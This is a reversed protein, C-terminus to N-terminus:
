NRTRAAVCRRKGAVDRYFRIGAAGTAPWRSALLAAVVDAQDHGVELVVWGDVVVNGMGAVLRHFFRLGDEGGDLALAPDYCRVEPELGAIQGTRIYPPNSILIDFQGRVAELADGALWQARHAMGLQRANARAVDLAAVSIDTGIGLAGPLEALLTLLLCGSGTGVDLIRLPRALWGESATLELAAGILTESDPRPDLTAPSIAFSQGYFDREGVIRSVPERAVRRAICRGVSEAEEPSLPREPRALIEAAALGLIAALLRRADDGASEVGARRLLATAQRLAAGLTLHAVTGVLDRM